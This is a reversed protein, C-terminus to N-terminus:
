ISFNIYALLSEYNRFAKYIHMMNYNAHYQYMYYMKRVLIEAVLRPQHLPKLVLFLLRTILLIVTLQWVFLPLVETLPNQAQWIGNTISVPIDYCVTTDNVWRDPM